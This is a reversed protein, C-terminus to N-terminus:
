PHDASTIPRRGQRDNFLRFNKITGTIGGQERLEGLPDPSGDLTEIRSNTGGFRVFRYVRGRLWVPKRETLPAAPWPPPPSGNGDGGMDEEDPEPEPPPPKQRQQEEIMVVRGKLTAVEQKLGAVESRLQRIAETFGRLTEILREDM